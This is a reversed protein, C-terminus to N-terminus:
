RMACFIYFPSFFSLHPWPCCIGLLRSGAGPSCSNSNRFGPLIDGGPPSCARFAHVKKACNMDFGYYFGDDQHPWRYPQPKSILDGQAM